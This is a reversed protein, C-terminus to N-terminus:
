RREGIQLAQQENDIVKRTPKRTRRPKDEERESNDEISLGVPTPKTRAHQHFREILEGCGEMVDKSKTWKDEGGKFRVLYEVGMGAKTRRSDLIDEVEWELEGGDEREVVEPPPTDIIQGPFPDNAALHLLSTHFM